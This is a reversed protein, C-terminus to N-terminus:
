YEANFPSLVEAINAVLAEVRQRCTIKRRVAAISNNLNVINIAVMGAFRISSKVPM